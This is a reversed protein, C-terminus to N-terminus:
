APDRRSSQPETRLARLDTEIKINSRLANTGSFRTPYPLNYTTFKSQNESAVQENNNPDFQFGQAILADCVAARLDRLKQRLPNGSLQDDSSKIIRLDIDESMRMIAGHAKCLATGGTFILTFPEVKVGNIALLAQTLYYDKEAVAPMPLGIADAIEDFPLDRQM